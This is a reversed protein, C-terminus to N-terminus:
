WCLFVSYTLPGGKSTEVGKWVKSDAKFTLMNSLRKLCLVFLFPSLPDGQRLGRSPTFEELPEGDWIVVTSVTTVCCMILEILIHDFNVDELTQKLFDWSINDYAKEIDINFVM